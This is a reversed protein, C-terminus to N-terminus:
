GGRRVRLVYTEFRRGGDLLVLTARGEPVLAGPIGLTYGLSSPRLGAATWRVTGGEDLLEVAVPRGPPANVNLVLAIRATGAPVVLENEAPAGSRRATVPFVELVPLNVEPAALRGLDDRLGAAAARLGVVEAEAAALREAATRDAGTAAPGSAYPWRTGALFAVVLGAALSAYPWAMQQWTSRSRAPEPELRRSERALALEERCRSCLRLHAEALGADALPRDWALDVLTATPLHTGFVAATRLTEDREARCAPCGDLHERVASAEGADLSGNLLWPLLLAVNACDM